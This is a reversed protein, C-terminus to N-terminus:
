ACSRGGARGAFERLLQDLGGDGRVVPLAADVDIGRGHARRHGPEVDGAADASVAVPQDPKRGVVALHNGVADLGIERPELALRQGLALHFGFLPPEIPKRFEDPERTLGTWILSFSRPM